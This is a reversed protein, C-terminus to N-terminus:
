TPNEIAAFSTGGAAMDTSSSLNVTTGALAAPAGEGWVLLPQFTAIEFATETQISNNLALAGSVAVTYEYSYTGVPLEVTAGACNDFTSVVKGKNDTVTLTTAIMSATSIDNIKRESSFYECSLDTTLTEISEHHGDPFLSTDETV